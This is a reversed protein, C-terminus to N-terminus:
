SAQGLQRGGNPNTFHPTNTLNFAEARAELNVKKGVPFRRFLSLDINWWGPGRM